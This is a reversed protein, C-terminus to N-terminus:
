TESNSGAIFYPLTIRQGMVRDRDYRVSGGYAESLEEFHVSTRYCGQWFFIGVM